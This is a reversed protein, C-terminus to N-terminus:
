NTGSRLSRLAALYAHRWAAALRGPPFPNRTPVGTQAFTEAARAGMTAADEIASM